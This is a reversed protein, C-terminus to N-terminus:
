VVLKELIPEINTTPNGEDDCIIQNAPPYDFYNEIRKSIREEYTDNVGNEYVKGIIPISLNKEAVSLAVRFDKLHKESFKEAYGKSILENEIEKPLFAVENSYKFEVIDVFDKVKEYNKEDVLIHQGVKYNEFPKKVVGIYIPKELDKKLVIADEINRIAFTYYERTHITDYTPCPQKVNILALGKHKVASEILNSLGKIDYAYGQAVFSYNAELAIGIPNISDKINPVPLSKPQEGKKLTPSAQGKTLAYVTNDSVIIKIDVNYRGVNVFHGAGIGYCDGDGTWVIVKLNPNALKIGTAVPIPRGHLTHAAYVRFDHAGKSSCGIGSVIVTKNPDLQLKELAFYCSERIGFDGCGPCWAENWEEVYDGKKYVM